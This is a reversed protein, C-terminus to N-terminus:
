LHGILQVRVPLALLAIDIPKVGKMLTVNLRVEGEQFMYLYSPKKGQELLVPGRKWRIPEVIHALRMMEVEVLRRFWFTSRLFDVTSKLMREEYARILRLYDARGLWLLTTDKTEAVAGRLRKREDSTEGLLSMEGFSVGEPLLTEIEGAKTRITVQGQVILYFEEGIDGEKFITDGSNLVRAGMFRCVEVRLGSQDRPPLKQFFRLREFKALVQMYDTM